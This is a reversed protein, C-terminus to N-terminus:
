MSLTMNEKNISISGDAYGKVITELAEDDGQNAALLIYRLGKKPNKTLGYEGGVYCVGIFYQAAVSGHNAALLLYELAKGENKAAGNGKFYCECIALLAGTEGQKAAMQFYQFATKPNKTVGNGNSYCFLGLALQALAYGEDAAEKFYNFAKVEDEKVGIGTLYMWGLYLKGKPKHKINEFWALNNSVNQVWKSEESALYLYSAPYNFKASKELIVKAKDFNSSFLLREGEKFDNLGPEIYDILDEVSPRLTFDYNWCKQIMSSWPIDHLPLPTSNEKMSKEFSAKSEEPTLDEYPSKIKWLFWLLYGVSFIDSKLVQNSLKMKETSKDYLSPFLVEPAAWKITALNVTYYEDTLRLIGYDGIKVSIEGGKQIIEIGTLFQLAIEKVLNHHTEKPFHGMTSCYYEKTKELYEKLNCDAKELIIFTDLDTKSWGLSQLM